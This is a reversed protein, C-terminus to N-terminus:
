AEEDEGPPELEADCLPCRRDEPAPFSTNCAPCYWYRMDVDNWCDPWVEELYRTSYMGMVDLVVIANGESLLMFSRPCCEFCPEPPFNM